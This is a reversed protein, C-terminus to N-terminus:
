KKGKKCGKSKKKKGYVQSKIFAKTTKTDMM